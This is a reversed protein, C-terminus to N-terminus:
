RIYRRLEKRVYKWEPFLESLLEYYKAGHNNHKLHCLEHVIVYEIFLDPLMILETNLTIVGKSSCSGWRRKMTRIVLNSPKFKQGEHKQMMRILLEPFVSKAENTFGRYLLKKVAEQDDPKGLGMEIIGENFRIFSKDSRGISLICEKGRFLHKEGNVFIRKLRSNEQGKYNDRHKIIWRAKETVIRHITKDSTRLPVRVIVSSDPLVSIGLTRRRSYVVRFEIGQINGTKHDTQSAVKQNGFIM